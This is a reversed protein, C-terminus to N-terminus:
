QKTKVILQAKIDRAIVRSALVAKRLREVIEIPMECTCYELKKISLRRILDKIPYPFVSNNCDFITIQSLPKYEEPTVTVLTNPPHDKNRQTVVEIKSSGLVLLIIEESFPNLNIVVYYHSESSSIRGSPFYYVSGPRIAGKIIVEPPIDM